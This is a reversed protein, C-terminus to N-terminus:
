RRRARGWKAAPRTTSARQAAAIAGEAWPRLAEASDLAEEPVQYFSMSVDKGQRPYVFPTAGAAVFGPRTADDVKLYLTDQWILAFFLDDRYLGWGGFMRRAMVGGLPELLERVHTVFGPDASVPASM